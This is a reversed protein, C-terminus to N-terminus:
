IIRRYCLKSKLFEYDKNYKLEAKPNPILLDLYKTITEKKNM